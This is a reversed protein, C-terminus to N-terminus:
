ETPKEPPEEPHVVTRPHQATTDETLVLYASLWGVLGVILFAIGGKILASHLPAGTLIGVGSAVSFGTIGLAIGIKAKFTIIM